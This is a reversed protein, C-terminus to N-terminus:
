GEEEDLEMDGLGLHETLTNLMENRKRGLITMDARRRPGLFNFFPEGAGSKAYETLVAWLTDSPPLSVINEVDVTSMLVPARVGSDVQVEATLKKILPKMLTFEPIREYTLVVPQIPTDSRTWFEPMGEVLGARCLALTQKLQAIAKQFGARELLRQL